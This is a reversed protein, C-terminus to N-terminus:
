GQRQARQLVNHSRQALVSDWKVRHEGEGARKVAQTHDENVTLNMRRKSAPPIRSHKEKWSCANYIHRTWRDMSTVFSCLLEVDM